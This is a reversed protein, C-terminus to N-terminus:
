KELSFEGRFSTEKLSLLHNVLDLHESLESKADKSRAMQHFRSANDNLFQKIRKIEEVTQFDLKGRKQCAEPLLPLSYYWVLFEGM